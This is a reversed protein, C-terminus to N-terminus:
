KKDGIIRNVWVLKTPYKLVDISNDTIEGHCLEHAVYCNAKTHVNHRRPLIHHGTLCDWGGDRKGIKLCWQCIYNEEICREDTVQKWNKNKVKQKKSVKELSKQTKLTSKTTLKKFIRLGNQSGIQQRPKRNLNIM